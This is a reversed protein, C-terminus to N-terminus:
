EAIRRMRATHPGAPYLEIYRRAADIARDATGAASWSAAEEALADESLPGAPALKWCSRYAAAAALDRGRAREVNGLMFLAAVVRPDDRHRRALYRLLDAAEELRGSRRAEDVRALLAGASLIELESGAGRGDRREAGHMPTEAQGRLHTSDGSNAEDTADILGAVDGVPDATVAVEEGAGIDFERDGDDLLVIGSEVRVRVHSPEIAVSFVTGVVRIEIGAAHVVMERGESRKIEYRVTGNTQVLELLHATRVEIFVEAGALLIARGAGALDLTSSGPEGTGARAQAPPEEGSRSKDLFLAFALALMAAAAAGAAIWAHFRRAPVGSRHVLVRALVRRERVDDWPVKQERLRRAVEEIRM